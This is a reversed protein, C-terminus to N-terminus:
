HPRSKGQESRGGEKGGERMQSVKHKWCSQSAEATLLLLLGAEKGWQLVPAVNEQETCYDWGSVCSTWQIFGTSMLVNGSSINGGSRRPPWVAMVAKSVGNQIGCIAGIASVYGTCFNSQHLIKTVWPDSWGRARNQQHKGWGSHGATRRECMCFLGLFLLWCWQVFGCVEWYHSHDCQFLHTDDCVTCSIRFGSPM